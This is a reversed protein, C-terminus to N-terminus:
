CYQIILLIWTGTYVTNQFDFSMSSNDNVSFVGGAYTNDAGDIFPVKWVCQQSLFLGNCIGIIEEEACVKIADMLQENNTISILTGDALITEIPYSLSISYNEPLNDLFTYFQPNSSVVTEDIIELSENYTFILFSYNFEICVIDVLPNESNDTMRIFLNYLESNKAILLDSNVSFDVPENECSVFVFVMVISVLKFLKKM